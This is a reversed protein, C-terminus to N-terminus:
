HAAVNSSSAVAVAPMEPPTLSYSMQIDAALNLLVSQMTAKHAPNKIVSNLVGMIIMIAFQELQNMDDLGGINILSTGSELHTATKVGPATVGEVILRLPAAIGASVPLVAAIDLGVEAIKEVPKGITEFFSLVKNTMM